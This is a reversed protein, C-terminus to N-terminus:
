LVAAVMRWPDLFHGSTVTRLSLIKKLQIPGNLFRATIAASAQATVSPRSKFVLEHVEVKEGVKRPAVGFVVGGNKSALRAPAGVADTIQWIEERRVEGLVHEVRQQALRRGEM